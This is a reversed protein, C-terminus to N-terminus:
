STHVQINGGAITNKAEYYPDAGTDIGEWIKIDFHDSGAGPESNDKVQVRFTYLGEKGKITGTGQFQASM